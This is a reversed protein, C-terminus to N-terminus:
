APMTNQDTTCTAQSTEDSLIEILTFRNIIHHLINLAGAGTNQAAQEPKNAEADAQQQVAAHQIQQSTTPYTHVSYSHVAWSLGFVIGMATSTCLFIVLYHKFQLRM